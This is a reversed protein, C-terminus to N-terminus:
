GGAPGDIQRRIRAGPGPDDGGRVESEQGEAGEVADMLM